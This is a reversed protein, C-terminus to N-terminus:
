LVPLIEIGAPCTVPAIDILPLETNLFYRRLVPPEFVEILGEPAFVNVCPTFYSPVKVALAPYKRGLEIVTILPV